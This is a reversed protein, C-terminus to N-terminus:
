ICKQRHLRSLLLPSTEPMHQNKCLFYLQQCPKNRLHFFRYLLFKPKARHKRKKMKAHLNVKLQKHLLAPLHALRKTLYQAVKPLKEFRDIRQSKEFVPRVAGLPFALLVGSLHIM